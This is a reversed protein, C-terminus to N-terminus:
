RLTPIARGFKSSFVKTPPGLVTFNTFIKERLLKGNYPTYFAERGEQGGVCM